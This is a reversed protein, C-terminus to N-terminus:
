KFISFFFFFGWFIENQLDEIMSEFASGMLVPCACTLFPKILLVCAIDLPMCWAHVENRHLKLGARESVLIQGAEWAGLIDPM